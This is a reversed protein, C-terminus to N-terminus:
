FINKTKSYIYDITEVPFSSLYQSKTPSSCHFIFDIDYDTLLDNDDIIELSLYKISSFCDSAKKTNRAQAIVRINLNHYKAMTEFFYVISYGIFGTAGTILISKNKYQNVFESVYQQCRILESILIDLPKM